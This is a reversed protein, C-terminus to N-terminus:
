FFCNLFLQVTHSVIHERVHRRAASCNPKSTADHSNAMAHWAVVVDGVVDGVVLSPYNKDLYDNGIKIIARAIFLNTARTIILKTWCVLQIRAIRALSPINETSSHFILTQVSALVVALAHLALSESSLAVFCNAPVYPFIPSLCVAQIVQRRHPHLIRDGCVAVNVFISTRKHVYGSCEYANAWMCNKLPYTSLDPLENVGM